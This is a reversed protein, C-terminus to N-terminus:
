LDFNVGLCITSLCISFIFTIMWSSILIIGFKATITSSVHLFVISITGLVRLNDIWDVPNNTNMQIVKNEM